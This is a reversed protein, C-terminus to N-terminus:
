RSGPFTKRSFCILREHHHHLRGLLRTRAKTRLARAGLLYVRTTAFDRHSLSLHYTRSERETVGLPMEMFPYMVDNASM